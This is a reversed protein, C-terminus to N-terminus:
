GVSDDRYRSRIGYVQWRSLSYIRCIDAIDGDDNAVRRKWALTGRAFERDKPEPQRKWNALAEEAEEVLERSLGEKAFRDAFRDYDPWAEGSPGHHEKTGTTRAAFNQTTGQSVLFLGRLADKFRIMLVENDGM